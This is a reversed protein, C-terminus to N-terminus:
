PLFEPVLEKGSQPLRGERASHRLSAEDRDTVLKALLLDPGFDGM